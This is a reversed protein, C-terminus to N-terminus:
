VSPLRAAPITNLELHQIERKTKQNLLGSNRVRSLAFTSVSGDDGIGQGTRAVTTHRRKPDSLKQGAGRELRVRSRPMVVRRGWGRCPWGARRLGGGRYHQGGEPADVLAPGIRGRLLRGVDPETAILAVTATELLPTLWGQKHLRPSDFGRVEEIRVHACIRGATRHRSKEGTTTGAVSEQQKRRDRIERHLAAVMGSM